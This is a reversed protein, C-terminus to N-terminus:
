DGHWGSGTTPLLGPSPGPWVYCPLRCIAQHNVGQRDHPLRTEDMDGCPRTRVPPGEAAGGVPVAHGPVRTYGGSQPLVPPVCKCWVGVQRGYGRLPVGHRAPVQTYGGSYPAPPPPPQLVQVMGRSAVRVCLQRPSWLCVRACTGVHTHTHTHTHARAYVCVLNSHKPM